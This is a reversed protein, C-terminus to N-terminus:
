HPVPIAAPRVPLPVALKLQLVVPLLHLPVVGVFVANMCNMSSALSGVEIPPGSIVGILVACLLVASLLVFGLQLAALFTTKRHGMMCEQSFELSSM